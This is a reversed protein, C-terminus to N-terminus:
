AWGVPYPAALRAVSGKANDTAIQVQRSLPYMDPYLRSNLLVAPDIKKVEAHAAAKELIASLNNLILVFSPVSAQYM